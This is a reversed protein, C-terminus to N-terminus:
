ALLPQELYEKLTGLFMAAIAGDVARHDAVLSLKMTPRTIIKGNIIAPTNAMKNMGLIAVQPQNIIPTFSEITFLTFDIITFTGGTFLAPSFNGSKAKEVIGAVEASIQALTKAHVNHLVPVVAGGDLAVTIGMNVYDRYIFHDGDITCNLLPHLLLAASVAKVVMDTYSVEIGGRIIDEKASKLATMDVNIDFTIQPSIDVSESIRQAIEKQWSSRPVRRETVMRRYEESAAMVHFSMIRGKIVPLNRVDVGLEVAMKAALPSIRVSAGPRRLFGM